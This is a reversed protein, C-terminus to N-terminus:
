QIMVMMLDSNDGIGDSDTDVSETADNLSIEVMAIQTLHITPTEDGATVVGDCDLIMLLIQQHKLM